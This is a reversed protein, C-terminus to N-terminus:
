SLYMESDGSGALNGVFEGAAWALMFVVLYPLANLYESQRARNRQYLRYLILPPLLPTTCLYILRKAPGVMAGRTGAFWRGYHYRESLFSGLTFRKKHIVHLSPESRLAYGKSELTQHLFGERYQQEWTDRAADLAARKYSVNPGPLDHTAGAIIPSTYVSYECLYVARDIGNDTAGNDVAGGIAAETFNAHAKLIAEYWNADPICHDETIAVVDAKAEALGAARLQAVTKRQDFAILRVEPYETRIFDTVSSGICDAVIVEASIDGKQQSLAKLCTELYARGNISAIVVSLQPKPAESPSL